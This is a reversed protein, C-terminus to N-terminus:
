YAYKKKRHLHALYALGSIVGLGVATCVVAVAIKGGKSLGGSCPFAADCPKGSPKAGQFANPELSTYFPDSSDNMVHLAALTLLPANLDLAPETQPWDSRIDYFRDRRDPGGVVAGYLVYAEQPPDTDINSIDSGGSATASHPNQPSNPSSGVVYPCSMPNSGLAYNLQLSAFSTYAQSKEQTSALPSYFNLLMALNLAPNLSAQDSDGNYYLLGGDTVFGRSNEDIINDFYSEVGNQWLSFNGGLNTRSSTMQAFLVASGPTKSDWNFLDDQSLKSQNYYTEAQSFYDSSNTAMALFLAAITLEDGFTSSGYADAAQPVANQYVQQGGSANVAFSYLSQAHELLTSAYTANQLSAVGSLPTNFQQGSYLASCASFAASTGAAADTGPSTDNIQYSIRPTPIGLDGGWYADDTDTDGVLVYLTDGSPHAKILWDLGWRLMSDLYATQNAMDYGRGYEMAGWCISMLTFSLPYTAKIYDGADYYGGALDLSADQGDNLASDNRWSVRNSNPLDGSRQADYFFILNGLLNSWQPNPISSSNTPQSSSSADPPLYSPSPLSLQASSVHFLICCVFLSFTM